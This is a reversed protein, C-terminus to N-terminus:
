VDARADVSRGRAQEPAMYDPTGIALGTGTLEAGAARHKSVGFDTLYAREEAARQRILINAPKVDRHVLGSSHAEDLAGAVQEVLAVARPPELAGQSRLLARLDTGEIFRMTVYLRGREEGAHFVTVLNPHDLSAALRCEREFRARFVDDRAHAPAILKLAVRRDLALDTAAYVVGMGGQGAIADIRHGAFEAGISLHEDDTATLLRAGLTPDVYSRGNAAARVADVLSSEAGEKLVYGRAGAALAARAMSPDDEMTLVVVASGPALALFRDIASITPTGPMNLDLVVVAPRLDRTRHLATEVDSAEAVVTLGPEADLVMRLGHRVMTHDDALVIEIRERDGSSPHSM